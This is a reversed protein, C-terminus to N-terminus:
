PTDAALNTEDMGVVAIGAAQAENIAPALDFFLSKGAEVALCTAGIRAMLRITDLGVTPLDARTEQGPKLAKVVTLGGKVLTGARALCANTGELAEVAVVVQKKVVVTQGIDLEGLRRAAAYGFRVDAWEAATPARLSLVGAPTVLEPVLEHPGAVRFGHDEFAAVVARLLVDDGKAKGHLRFYLRAARWDPRFDMARAKNVTGAMVLTTVKERKFFALLRGLQGLHVVTYADAEGAIAPDTQGSLGAVAVRHGHGRAGAAVLFPFRGGGAMLGITEAV